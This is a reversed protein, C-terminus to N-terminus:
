WVGRTGKLNTGELLEEKTLSYQQRSGQRRSMPAKVGSSASSYMLIPARFTGTTRPRLMSGSHYTFSQEEYLRCTKGENCYLPHDTKTLIQHHRRRCWRRDGAGEFSTRPNRGVVDNNKLSEGLRNPWGYCFGPVPFGSLVPMYM